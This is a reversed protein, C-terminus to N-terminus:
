LARYLRHLKYTIFSKRFYIYVKASSASQPFKRGIKATRIQLIGSCTLPANICCIILQPQLLFNPCILVNGNKLKANMLCHTTKFTTFQGHFVPWLKNITSCNSPWSIIISWRTPIKMVMFGPYAPRVSNGSDTFDKNLGTTTMTGSMCCIQSIMNNESPKKIAFTLQTHAQDSNRQMQYNEKIRKQRFYSRELLEHPQLTIFTYTRINCGAAM